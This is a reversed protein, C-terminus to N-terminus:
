SLSQAKIWIKGTANTPDAASVAFVTGSMTEWTGDGRLFANEKGAAPAPVLGKTGATSSTAGTMAASLTTATEEIAEVAAEAVEAICDGTRAALSQLHDMTIAQKTEPM